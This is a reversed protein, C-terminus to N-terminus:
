GILWLTVFRQNGNHWNSNDSFMVNDNEDGHSSVVLMFLGIDKRKGIETLKKKFDNKTVHGVLLVVEFGRRKLVEYGQKHDNEVNKRDHESIDFKSIVLVLCIKEGTIEYRDENYKPFTRIDANNDTQTEKPLSAPTAEVPSAPAQFTVSM